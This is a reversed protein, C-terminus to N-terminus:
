EAMAPLYGPFDRFSDTEPEYAPSSEIMRVAVLRNEFDVVLYQGLYGGHSAGVVQEDGDNDDVQLFWLLGIVAEREALVGTPRADGTALSFSWQFWEDDILQGNNWSGRDLALQGLRALDRPHIQLGSMGHPNGAQDRSWGFESIGLKGFLDGALFEDLPEGALDEAIAALLNPANNNYSVETGPDAQMPADLAFRVFDGSQYLDRTPMAPDLGSTHNLLHHLTIKSQRGESWDPFFEHVPKDLSDIRGLTYLRGFILNVVAKTVSMAEIPRSQGDRLWEGALQGDVRLVLGSTLNGSATEVLADVEDHNLKDLGPGADVKDFPRNRLDQMAKRQKDALREAAESGARALQLGAVNGQNVAQGQLRDGDFMGSLSMGGGPATISLENDALEVSEAAVRFDGERPFILDASWSGEDYHLEVELPFVGDPTDMMGVWHGARDGAMAPTALLITAFLLWLSSLRHITM